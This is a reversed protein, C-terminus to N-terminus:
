ELLAIQLTNVIHWSPFSDYKLEVFQVVTTVYNDSIFFIDDISIYIHM